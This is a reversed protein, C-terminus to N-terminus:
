RLHGVREAMMETLDRLLFAYRGNLKGRSCEKQVKDFNEVSLGLDRALLFYGLAELNVRTCRQQSARSRLNM